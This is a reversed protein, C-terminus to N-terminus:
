EKWITLDLLHISNVFPNEQSSQLDFIRILSLRVIANSLFITVAVIKEKYLRMVDRVEDLLKRNKSTNEPTPM